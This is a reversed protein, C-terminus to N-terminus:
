RATIACAKEFRTRQQATASKRDACSQSVQTRLCECLESLKGRQHRRRRDGGRKALGAAVHLLRRVKQELSRLCARHVIPVLLAEGGVAWRPPRAPLTGYAAAHARMPARAVIHESPCDHRANRTAAPQLVGDCVGVPAHVSGFRTATANRVTCRCEPGDCSGFKSACEVRMIALPNKPGGLPQGEGPKSARGNNQNPLGLLLRGGFLRRLDAGM